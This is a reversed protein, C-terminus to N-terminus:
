TNGAKLGEVIVKGIQEAMCRYGFDNLHFNDESLMDEKGRAQVIARMNAFRDVYAIGKERAVREMARGIALYHGSEALRTTYQQGVIIMEVNARRVADITSRMVTEFRTLAVDHTGDNVGTQWVILGPPDGSLESLIRVATEAAIEGPAGMNDVNIHAHRLARRLWAQMQLPYATNQSSAGQGQTSSSGFAAIRVDSGKALLRKLRPLAYARERPFGPADCSQPPGQPAPSAGVVPPPDFDRLSQALAMGATALTVSAFALARGTAAIRM